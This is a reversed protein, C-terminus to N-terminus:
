GQSQSAHSVHSKPNPANSGGGDYIEDQV